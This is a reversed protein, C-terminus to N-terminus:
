VFVLINCRLLLIYPNIFISFITSLTSIGLILTLTTFPINLYIFGSFVCFVKVLLANISSTILLLILHINKLVYKNSHRKNTNNNILSKPTQKIEYPSCIVSNKNYKNPSHNTAILFTDSFGSSISSEIASSHEKEENPDINNDTSNVNNELQLMWLSHFTNGHM